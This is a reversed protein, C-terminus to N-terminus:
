SQWLKSEKARRLAIDIDTRPTKQTKKVFVRLVIIQERIVIIYIARAIGTRSRMRMEWLGSGLPKVHPESVYLPGKSELLAVIRQFSARMDAPLQDLEHEVRKELVVVKWAV